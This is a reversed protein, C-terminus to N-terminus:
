EKDSIRIIEADNLLCFHDAKELTCDVDQEWGNPLKLEYPVYDLDNASAYQVAEEQTKFVCGGLYSDTRGVKLVPQNKAQMETIYKEYSVHHGLTYAKNLM